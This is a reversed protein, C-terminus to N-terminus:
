NSIHNIKKYLFEAIPMDKNTTIKINDYDTYIIKCVTGYRSVLNCSDISSFFEEEQAKKHAQYIDELYFSQPAKALICKSREPIKEIMGDNDIEVVTETMNVSSIATGYKKVTEINENILDDTIFPRVGDHILVISNKPFKKYSYELCNYVSMQSTTGGSLVKLVKKINYKKLLEEVYDIWDELTALVIADINPNKEFKELTHILIPKNDIELFQKPREAGKMRTGKGGAFVVAINM